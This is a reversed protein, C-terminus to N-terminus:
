SPHREETRTKKKKTIEMREGRLLREAAEIEEEYDIDICEEEIVFPLIRRGTTSNQKLIVSPRTIDIYGDQWYAMPLLQRPQNFPELVGDLRAVPTLLNEENIVWMKFPSYESRRVSRLCDIDERSLFVQVARDVTDPNRIPHTPRLNVVADPSYKEHEQLWLLAHRHYDIDLSLDGALEQPRLFPVEAGSQLAIDAIKADDTTVIVRSIQKARLACEVTYAILPKGMVERINKYPISKSQGRAPVLALVESSEPKM